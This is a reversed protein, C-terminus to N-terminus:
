RRAVGVLPERRQAPLAGVDGHDIEVHGALAAVLHAARDLRIRLEAARGHDQHHSGVRRLVVRARDAGAGVVHERLRQAADRQDVGHVAEQARRHQPAQRPHAELRRHADAQGVLVGPAGRAIERAAPDEDLELM